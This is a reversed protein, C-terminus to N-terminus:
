SRGHIGEGRSHRKSVDCHCMQHRRSPADVGDSRSFWERAFGIGLVVLATMPFLLVNLFGALASAYFEALRPIQLSAAMGLWYILIAAWWLKAHWPRWLWNSARVRVKATADSEGDDPRDM